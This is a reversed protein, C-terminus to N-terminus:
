AVAKRRRAMAGLSGFAALLMWAAAPLPVPPIPAMAARIDLRTRENPNGVIASRNLVGTITFGTLSFPLGTVMYDAFNGANSLLRLDTGNVIISSVSLPNNPHRDSLSLQM